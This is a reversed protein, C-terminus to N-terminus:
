LSIVHVQQGPFHPFSPLAHAGITLCCQPGELPSWPSWILSMLMATHNLCVVKQEHLVEQWYASVRQLTGMTRSWLHFPPKVWSVSATLNVFLTGLDDAHLISECFKPLLSCLCNPLFQDAHVSEKMKTDRHPESLTMNSFTKENEVSCPLFM